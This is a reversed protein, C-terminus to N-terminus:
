SEKIESNFMSLSSARPALNFANRIKEYFQFYILKTGLAQGRKSSISHQTNANMLKTQM